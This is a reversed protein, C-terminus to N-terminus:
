IHKVPMVFSAIYQYHKHLGVISSFIHLSSSIHQLNPFTSHPHIYTCWQNTLERAKKHLADM